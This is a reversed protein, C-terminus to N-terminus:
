KNRPKYSNVYLSVPKVVEEVENNIEEDNKHKNGFVRKEMIRNKFAILEQTKIKLLAKQEPIDVSLLYSIRGEWINKASEKFSKIRAQTISWIDGEVQNSDFEELGKWSKTIEQIEKNRDFAKNARKRAMKVKDKFDQETKNEKQNIDAEIGDFNRKNMWPPTASQSDSGEGEDENEKEKEKELFVEEESYEKEDFLGKFLDEGYPNKPINPLTTIDFLEPIIPDKVEDEVNDIVSNNIDEKKKLSVKENQNEKNPISELDIEEVEPRGDDVNSKFSIIDEQLNNTRKLNKIVDPREITNKEKIEGNIKIIVGSKSREIGKKRDSRQQNRHYEDIFTPIFDNKMKPPVKGTINGLPGENWVNELLIDDDSKQPIERGERELWSRYEVITMPDKKFDRDPDAVAFNHMRDYEILQSFAEKYLSEHYFIKEKTKNIFYLPDHQKIKYVNKIKWWEWAQYEVNLLLEIRLKDAPQSIEQEKLLEERRRKFDLNVQHNESYTPRYTKFRLSHREADFFGIGGAPKGSPSMNIIVRSYRERWFNFLQTKEELTWYDPSWDMKLSINNKNNLPVDFNYWSLGMKKWDVKDGMCILDCADSFQSKFINVKEESNPFLSRFLEQPKRNQSLLNNVINRVGEFYEYQELKEMMLNLAIVPEDISYPDIRTKRKESYERSEALIQYQEELTPVGEIAGVYYMSLPYLLNVEVSQENKDM